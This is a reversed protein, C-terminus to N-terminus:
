AADLEAAASEVILVPDDDPGAGAVVGVGRLMEDRRIPITDGVRWNLNASRM